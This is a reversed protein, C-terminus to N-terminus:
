VKSLVLQQMASRAAHWVHEGCGSDDVDLCASVLPADVGLPALVMQLGVSAKCSDILTDSRHVSFLPYQFTKSKALDSRGTPSHGVFGIAILVAFLATVTVHHSRCLDLIAASEPPSLTLCAVLNRTKSSTPLVIPEQSAM